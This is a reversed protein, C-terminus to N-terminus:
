TPRILRTRTKEPVKRGSVTTCTDPCPSASRPWASWSASSRTPASVEGRPLCCRGTAAQGAPSMQATALSDVASLPSVSELLSRGSSMSAHLMGSGSSGTAIVALDLASSSLSDCASDRRTASSGVSRM